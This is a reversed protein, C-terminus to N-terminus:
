STQELRATKKLLENRLRLFPDLKTTGRWKQGFIKYLVFRKYAAVTRPFFHLGTEGATLLAVVKEETDFGEEMFAHIDEDDFFELKEAPNCATNIDQNLQKFFDEVRKYPVSNIKSDRELDKTRLKHENGKRFKTFVVDFNGGIIIVPLAIVLLGWLMTVIGVIKAPVQTPYYDGYGVTTMTVVCWYMAAPISIFYTQEGGAVWIGDENMDTKEAEYVLSGFVTIFLCLMTLILGFAHSSLTFTKGFVELYEQFFPSKLLRFIRALRIVRIVRLLSGGGGGAFTIQIWFPIVALFDIMNMPDWFYSWMNRCSIIRAAYELTFVLSVVTEIIEFAPKGTLNPDTELVYSFTSVFILAMVTAIIIFSGWSYSEDECLLHVIEYFNLDEKQRNTDLEPCHACHRKHQTYASSLKAKRKELRLTSMDKQLVKWHKDDNMLAINEQVVQKRFTLSVPVDVTNLYDIVPTLDNHSEAEELLEVVYADGIKILESSPLIYDKLHPQNLQAVIVKENEPDKELVLGFPKEKFKREYDDDFYLLRKSNIFALFERYHIIKQNDAVQNFLARILPVPIGMDMSALAERFEEVNLGEKDDKDIDQWVKRVAAEEKKRDM